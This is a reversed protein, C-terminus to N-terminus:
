GVSCSAALSRLLACACLRFSPFTPDELSLSSAMSSTLARVYELIQPTLQWGSAELLNMPERFVTVNKFFLKNALDNCTANKTSEIKLILTWVNKACQLCSERVSAKRSLLQIFAWPFSQPLIGFQWLHRLHEVAQRTHVLLLREESCEDVDLQGHLPVAFHCVRSELGIYVFNAISAFADNM